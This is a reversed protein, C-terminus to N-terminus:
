GFFHGGTGNVVRAVIVPDDALFCGLSFPDRPVELFPVPEVHQINATTGPDVHLGHAFQPHVGMPHVDIGAGGGGWEAGDFVDDNPRV